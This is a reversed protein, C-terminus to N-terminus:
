AKGRFHRIINDAAEMEMRKRCTATYSSVHPTLIVQDYKLLPGNYPEERFCDLWAGAVKGNDLAGILAQEDVVGGRSSNLIFVGKKMADFENRGIVVDDGNVHVTVVDAEAFAEEIAMFSAGEFPMDSKPDVALIRAGISKLIGAVRRGIRGFGVVAVTSGELQSGMMKNWQGGRLSRDMAPIRRMLIIMAGVAMEAVAGTPADPTSYVAIGLEKAAELDVNNLGAGSRSIVKLKSNELVPRDLPELGAIIGDAGKLLGALEDKTLKRGFPNPIVDFGSEILRDVASRDPVGFTSAGILIKNRM